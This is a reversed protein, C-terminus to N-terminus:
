WMPEHKNTKEVLNCSTLGGQARARQARAHVHACMQPHMSTCLSSSETVHKHKQLSLVAPARKTEFHHTCSCLCICGSARQSLAM